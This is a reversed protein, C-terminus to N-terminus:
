ACADGAVRWGDHEADADADVLMHMIWLCPGHDM